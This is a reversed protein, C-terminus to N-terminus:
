IAAAKKGYNGKTYSQSWLGTSEPFVGDWGKAGFVWVSLPQFTMESLEFNGDKWMKQVPTRGTFTIYDTSPDIKKESMPGNCSYMAFKKQPFPAMGLSRDLMTSCGSSGTKETWGDLAYSVTELLAGKSDTMRIKRVGNKETIDFAAMAARWGWLADDVEISGISNTLQYSETVGVGYHDGLNQINDYTFNAATLGMGIPQSFYATSQHWTDNKRYATKDTYLDNILSMTFTVLGRKSGATLPICEIPYPWESSSSELVACDISGSFMWFQMGQWQPLCVPRNGWAPLRVIHTFKQYQLLPEYEKGPPPSRTQPCLRETDSTLPEGILVCKIVSSLGLLLLLSFSPTYMQTTLEM